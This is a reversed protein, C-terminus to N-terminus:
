LSHNNSPPQDDKGRGPMMAAITNKFSTVTEIGRNIGNGLNTSGEGFLYYDYNSTSKNNVLNRVLLTFTAPDMINQRAARGNNFGFFNSASGMFSLTASKAYDGLNSSQSPSGNILPQLRQLKDKNVLTGMTEILNQVQEINTAPLNDKNPICWDYVDLLDAFNERYHQNLEISKHIEYAAYSWLLLDVPMLISSFGFLKAAFAGMAAAAIPKSKAKLASYHQNFADLKQNLLSLHPGSNSSFPSNILQQQENTFAM